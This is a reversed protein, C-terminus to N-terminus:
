SLSAIIDGTSAAGLRHQPFFGASISPEPNIRFTGLGWHGSILKRFSGPSM